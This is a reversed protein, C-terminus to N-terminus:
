AGYDVAAALPTDSGKLVETDYALKNIGTPFIAVFLSPWVVHYYAVRFNPLSGFGKRIPLDPAPGRDFCLILQLEIITSLASLVYIFHPSANAPPVSGAGTYWVNVQDGRNKCEQM